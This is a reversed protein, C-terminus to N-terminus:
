RSRLSRMIRSRLWISAGAGTAEGCIEEVAEAFDEPVDSRLGDAAVAEAVGAAGPLTLIM